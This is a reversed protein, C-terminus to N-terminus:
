RHAGPTLATLDVCSGTGGPGTRGTRRVTQLARHTSRVTVPHTSGGAITWGTSTTVVVTLTAPLPCNRDAAPRVVGFLAIAAASVLVTLSLSLSAAAARM